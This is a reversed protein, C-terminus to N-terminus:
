ASGQSAPVGRAAQVFRAMRGADKHGFSVEVGSSVDVVDPQLRAVAEGVNEPTLGGALILFFGAPLGGCGQEVLEWSVRTGSGGLARPNWGDLLLADAREVYCEIGRRLDDASRPRLVKWLSWDGEQRLEALRQPSEDGHLQLVSAGARRAIASASAASENVLVAVLRPGGPETFERATDPRISRRFGETLLAGLLDAGAVRAQRADDARALGCIKVLPRRGARESSSVNGARDEPM